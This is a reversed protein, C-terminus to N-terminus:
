HIIEIVDESFWAADLGSLRVLLAVDRTAAGIVSVRSFRPRTWGEVRGIRAAFGLRSTEDDTRIRVLLGVTSPEAIESNQM